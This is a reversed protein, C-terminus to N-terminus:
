SELFGRKMAILVAHTRDNAKLKSIISKMHSKVTEESIFLRDAVIKNSCGSAITRLVEVERESLADESMHVAVESAIEPPIRRNGAHVSRVTDILETRLMSKLLYGSAGAKLARTAQVDGSYTTLVVIRANPFDSRIAKTAELGDMVPMRMDMLTVDPRLSRIPPSRRRDM